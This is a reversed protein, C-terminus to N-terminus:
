DQSPQQAQAAPNAITNTVPIHTQLRQDSANEMILHVLENIIEQCVYDPFELIQSEDRTKDIQDQTLRIHQPTKLYDVLVKELKFTSDDTGYRIEMRVKSANGYRHQAPKEVLDVKPSNGIKITRPFNAM